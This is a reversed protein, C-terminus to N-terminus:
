NFHSDFPTASLVWDEALVATIEFQNTAGDQNRHIEFTAKAPEPTEHTIRANDIIRKIAAAQPTNKRCYGWLPTTTDSFSLQYCVWQSDDKFEGNFYHDLSVIVRVLGSREHGDILKQWSPKCTQAFADFDIQWLGNDDPTLLALRKKVITSRVVVGELLLGNHDMSSRWTYGTVQGDTRAMSELFTSVGSPTASGLRFYKEIDSATRAVMASKVIELAQESSPSTFASPVRNGTTPQNDRPPPPTPHDPKDDTMSSQIWVGLGVAVAIMAVVALIAAWARLM